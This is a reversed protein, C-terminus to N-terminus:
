HFIVEGQSTYAWIEGSSDSTFIIGDDNTTVDTLSASAMVASLMNTGNTSHKKLLDDGTGM